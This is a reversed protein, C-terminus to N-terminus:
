TKMSIKWVTCKEATFNLLPLSFFVLKRRIGFDRFTHFIRFCDSRAGKIIEIKSLIFAKIINNKDIYCTGTHVMDFEKVPRVYTSNLNILGIPIGM